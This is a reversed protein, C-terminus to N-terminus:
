RSFNIRPRPATQSFASPLRWASFFMMVPRAGMPNRGGM